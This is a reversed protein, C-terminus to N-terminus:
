FMAYAVICLPACSAFVIPKTNEVLSVVLVDGKSEEGGNECYCLM